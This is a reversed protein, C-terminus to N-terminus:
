VLGVFVVCALISLSFLFGVILIDDLETNHFESRVTRFKQNTLAITVDLNHVWISTKEFFKRTDLFKFNRIFLVRSDFVKNDTFVTQIKGARIIVVCYRDELLISVLTLPHETTLNSGVIDFDSPEAESLRDILVL